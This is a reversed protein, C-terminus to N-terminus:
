WLKELCRAQLYMVMAFKGNTLIHKKYPSRKQLLIENEENIIVGIVERYFLGKEHVVNKSVVEGTFNNNEDVVDIYEM